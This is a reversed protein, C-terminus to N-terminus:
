QLLQSTSSRVTCTLVISMTTSYDVVVDTRQGQPQKPKEKRWNRQSSNKKWSDIGFLRPFCFASSRVSHCILNATVPFIFALDWLGASPSTCLCRSIHLVFWFRLGNAKFNSEKFHAVLMVKVKFTFRWWKVEEFKVVVPSTTLLYKCAFM